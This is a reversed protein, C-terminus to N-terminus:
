RAPFGVRKRLAQFRPDDRLAHFGPDQGGLAFLLEYSRGQYARELWKIAEDKNGLGVNVRAIHLPDVASDSLLEQLIQTAKERQRAVGYAHGLRSRADPWRAGLQVGKELAAVASDPNGQQLLVLGLHLHAVPNNPSIELVARMEELAEQYRGAVRLGSVLQIRALPFAPDLEVARELEALASDHQGRVMLVVGYWLHAIVSHPSLALARRYERDASAWDHTYMFLYEALLTHAEALAPDIELAKLVLQVAHPVYEKTPLGEQQGDILTVDALGVYAAAFLSDRAIAQNFESISKQIDLSGLFHRGMRYAKLAETDQTLPRDIRELEDASLAAGLAAAVGRAADTQVAHIASASLQQAYERSWLVHDQSADIVQVWLRLSDATEAVRCRVLTGAGVEAAIAGPSKKTERYQRMTLWSKPRLEGVSSLKEILEETWRDPVYEEATDQAMSECPLVALSRLEAARARSGAIMWSAGLGVAVLPAGIALGRRLRPPLRPGSVAPRFIAVNATQNLAVDFQAATAFRDAPSKALAKLIGQELSKPVSERVTRLSRPAETLKRALVAQATPGTFPPEGALMEYVVCGLSYVDSRGDIRPEAAAQEPSMYAATGVALGTETLREGGAATIARAIGFDAVVAHQGTLLINEPKIDRHVVGQSHAYALANAIQRGIDLAEDIPLQGEREMRARLSEGEVYPMVYYLLGNAEGSDHLPLINPHQLRAAIQIERLFREPGLAHALEQRLTKLAVMRRHKLDRALYVTAMGGHGLERELVYREAL